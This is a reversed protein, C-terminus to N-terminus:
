ADSSIGSERYKPLLDVIFRIVTASTIGNFGNVALFDM